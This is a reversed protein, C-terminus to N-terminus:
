KEARTEIEENVKPVLSAIGRIAQEINTYLASGSSEKIRRIWRSAGETPLSWLGLLIRADPVELAISNAMKGVTNVSRSEIASLLIWTSKLEKLRAVKEARLTRWSLLHTGIGEVALLRAIVSGVIEDGEGMFPMITIGPQGSTSQESSQELETPIEVTMEEILERLQAYIRSKTAGGGAGPYLDNEIARLTPLILEEVIQISLQMAALEQLLARAEPLRGETLFRILKTEASTPPEAALLVSCIYFAPFYRGLVVLCATLPTALLLGIPGWLWTWFLASVIIALPSMGTSGGLVFPEVVNNTIVELVGYLALTLVPERWGASIAISLVVPFFASIWLGVYPLFRLVLTLVAWLFANPIGILFLGIGLLIAFGTNVMLQGVLFGSLRSGAEDVALTTTAIRSHGILRLFRLRFRKRELLLFVVLVVVVAFEGVPGLVPTLSNKVLSFVSDTASVVEVKTPELKQAGGASESVKGLDAIMSGINTFALNLPGPPGKQIAVWKAHINDRYKPLSNVLDLGQLSLTSCLGGILFFAVAVVSLVAVARPFHWRELRSVVPALLFSILIALILPLLFEKAWAFAALILVLYAVDVLKRVNIPKESTLNNM